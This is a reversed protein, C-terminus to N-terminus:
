IGSLGVGDIETKDKIFMHPYYLPLIPTIYPYCLPLIPTIYPYYLPLIPTIVTVPFFLLLTDQTDQTVSTM